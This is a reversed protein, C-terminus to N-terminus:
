PRRAAEVRQALAANSFERNYTIEEGIWSPRPPDEDEARLEVEAIVLDDFPAAYEDIKWCYGAFAVEHRTKELIRRGCLKLLSTADELPISYEFEDRALGGDGSKITVYGDEDRIRVRIVSADTIALYGQTIRSSRAIDARWADSSILFRREIEHAM